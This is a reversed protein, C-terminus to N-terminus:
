LKSLLNKWHEFIIEESYETVSFKAQTAMINRLDPDQILLKVANVYAALDFSRILFGNFGNIIIEPPGSPCDFSVCPLGCEMAELLVMGFGEYRSTLLFFSAGLYENTIDKTPSVITVSESLNLEHIQLKLDELLEGSGVIRLKWDPHSKIIDSWIKILYHQQKDNTLRGVSLITKSNSILLDAILFPKSFPIHIINNCFRSYIKYDYLTPLVVIKAYKYTYKIILQYLVNYGKYSAHNTIIIKSPNIGSFVAEIYGLPTTVYFYDFDINKIKSKLLYISKILNTIKNNFIFNDFNLLLPILLINNPLDYFSKGADKTMLIVYNNTSLFNIHSCVVRELGGSPELSDCYVIFKM